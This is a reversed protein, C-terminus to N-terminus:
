KRKRKRGSRAPGQPYVWIPPAFDDDELDTLDHFEALSLLRRFYHISLGTTVVGILIGTGLDVSPLAWRLLLGIGVGSAVVGLNVVLYTILLGLLAKM